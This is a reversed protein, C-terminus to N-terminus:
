ASNSPRTQVSPSSCSHTSLASTILRQRGGACWAAARALLAADSLREWGAPTPVVRRREGTQPRFALWGSEMGPALRTPAPRGPAPQRDMAFVDFGNAAVGDAGRVERLGM